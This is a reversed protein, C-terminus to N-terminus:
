SPKRLCFLLKINIEGHMNNQSDFTVGLYKFEQVQEIINNGITISSLNGTKRTMMKYKTKEMNGRLGISGGAKMIEMM